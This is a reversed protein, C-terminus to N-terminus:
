RRERALLHHRRRRNTGRWRVSFSGGDASLVSPFAVPQDIGTTLMLPQQSWELDDITGTHADITATAHQFTVTGFNALPLLMCYVLCLAPAEAIWEASSLDVLPATTQTSFAEGTMLNRISLTVSTDRASIQATLTDGPAVTIPLDIPAAPVPILESWASYSPVLDNSCDASTGIQELGDASRGAGGLGIWFAASSNPRDCRIAPQVWTAEVGTFSRGAATDVYGAWHSSIRLPRASHAAPVTQMSVVVLLAALARVIPTRFM